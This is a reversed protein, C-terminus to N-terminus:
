KVELTEIHVRPGDDFTDHCYLWNKADFEKWEYNYQRMFEDAATQAGEITRRAAYADDFHRDYMVVLYIKM